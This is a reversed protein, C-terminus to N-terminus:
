ARSAPTYMPIAALANGLADKAVDLDYQAQLNLWFEDSQGFYHALRLATDATIARQGRVIASIRPLPVGLAKALQYQSLGLPKL